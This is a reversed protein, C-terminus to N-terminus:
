KGKHVIIQGGGLETGDYETDDSDMKNDYIVTDTTKDQIKIRFLDTDSDTATLMFGYEGAGNITGTGKYKAKEGAIVLWDYSDSHFNLDGAKFQFETNGTPVTAGKKYKSVFGFTAKGEASPNTSYFGAESYIWGGGTVFGATPDYVALLAEAKLCEPLTGVSAEVTYVGSFQSGINKTAVGSENTIGSGYANGDFIFDVEIGPTSNNLKAELSVDFGEPQPLPSLTLTIFNTFANDLAWPCFKVNDSVEDGTGTPNLTTHEPGSKAEWWNQTADITIGSFNYIGYGTNDYISNHHLYINLPTGDIGIGHGTGNYGGWSGDNNYITNNFAEVNSPGDKLSLAGKSWGEGAANTITNGSITARDSGVFSIGGERAGDVYNDTITANDSPGLGSWCKGVWIGHDGSNLVTNGTITVNDCGRAIFMGDGLNDQILCNNITLDQNVLAYMPYCNFQSKINEAICGTYYIYGEGPTDHAYDRFLVGYGATATQDGTFGQVTFNKITVDNAYVHIGKPWGTSSTGWMGADIITGDRSEGILSLPRTIVISALSTATYTGNVVYVTGYDAVADVGEQITDFHNYGDDPGLIDVWVEMPEGNKTLTSLDGQEAPPVVPLGCGTVILSLAVIALILYILKKM